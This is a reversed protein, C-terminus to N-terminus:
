SVGLAGHLPVRGLNSKHLVERVRRAFVASPARGGGGVKRAGGWGGAQRARVCMYKETTRNRIDETRLRGAIDVAGGGGGIGVLRRGDGDGRRHQHHTPRQM